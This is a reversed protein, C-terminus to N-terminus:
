GALENLKRRFTQMMLNSFIRAYNLPDFAIANRMMIFGEKVKGNTSISYKATRVLYELYRKQLFKKETPTLLHEHRDLLVKADAVYLLRYVEERKRGDFINDGTVTKRWLPEKIFGATCSKNMLMDLLMCWDDAINMRADWGSVMSSARILLSSSPSLCARLYMYRLETGSFVVSNGNYHEFYPELYPNHRCFNLEEGGKSKQIWNAFVFDLNHAELLAVSKELFTPEWYDDSDLSAIISGRAHRLGCNRAAGQGAHEQVIYRVTPYAQMLSATGDESGDDVVIIELNPYTQALASRISTELVSARNYTPIIVSVLPNNEM